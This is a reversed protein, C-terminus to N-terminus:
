VAILVIQGPSAGENSTFHDPTTVAPPKSQHSVFEAWVVRRPSGNVSIEFRDATLDTVPEGDADVVTVDVTVLEVRSRFVPQQQAAEALLVASFSAAALAKLM